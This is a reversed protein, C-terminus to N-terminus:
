VGKMYTRSPSDEFTEIREMLDKVVPSRVIDQRTFTVSGVFPSDKIIDYVISLTDKKNFLDSQRQDGCGVIRSEPSDGLRSLILKHESFTVNQCEDVIYYVSDRNGLSMGRLYGINQVEVIGTSMLKDRKEAGVLESLISAISLIYPAMKEEETGPLFGIGPGSEIPPKSVIIKQVRKTELLKLGVALALFSKGTGASGMLMTVKNKIIAEIALAQNNTKPKIVTSQGQKYHNLEIRNWDIDKPSDEVMKYEDNFNNQINFNSADFFDQKELETKRADLKVFNDYIKKCKDKHAKIVFITDLLKLQVDHKLSVENFLSSRDKQTSIFKIIRSNGKSLTIKRTSKKSAKSM